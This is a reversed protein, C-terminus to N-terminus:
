LNDLNRTYEYSQVYAKNAIYEETKMVSCSKKNINETTRLIFADSGSGSGYSVLLIQQGPKAKDLIATLGLLSCASYTNGIKNVLMGDYLQEPKFGLAKGVALPFKGNPQHFVAYDFDKAQLNNKVLIADATATVCKFYSPEATFRGVHQPYQQLERRWFDPTDTMYSIYDNITAIIKSTDSGVIFAAAGAGAGFELIDGPMGVAVDTGIAMGIKADGSKVLATCISLAATGAKCAFEVDAGACFKNIGLVQGVITATPKVAYVPSESGVFLANIDLPNADARMVANQAASVAMTVSDEDQGPVSKEEVAISSVIKDADKAYSLALDKVRIRYRPIYSGYGIIGVKM